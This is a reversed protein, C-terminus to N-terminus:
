PSLKVKEKVLMIKGNLKDEIYGLKKPEKQRQIEITQRKRATFGFM